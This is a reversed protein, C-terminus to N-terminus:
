SKAKELWRELSKNVTELQPKEKKLIYENFKMEEISAREGLIINIRYWKAVFLKIMNRCNVYHQPIISSKVCKLVKNYDINFLNLQTIFNSHKM